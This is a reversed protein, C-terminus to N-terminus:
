SLCQDSRVRYELLRWCLTYQLKSYDALFLAMAKDEWQSYHVLKWSSVRLETVFLSIVYWERDGM